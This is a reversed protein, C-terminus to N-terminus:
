KKEKYALKIIGFALISGLTATIIQNAGMALTLVEAIKQPTSVITAMLSFGGFIIATKLLIGALASLVYNMKKNVFLYKYLFIITFNGIWMAPIMYLAFISAPGPFVLGGGVAALSPLTVVGVLKKWGVINIGAIIISANVITGVVYQSNMTVASGAGFVIELLKPIFLPVLFVGLSILIIELIEAYRSINYKRLDLINENM